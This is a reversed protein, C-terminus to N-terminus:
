GNAPHSPAPLSELRHLVQAAALQEARRKNEASKTVGPGPLLAVKCSVTFRPTGTNASEAVLNYEPLQLHRAQLWEQLLSKADKFQVVDELEDFLQAFLFNICEATKTFSSCDLYIAALVAEFTDALISKSATGGSKLEGAGFRMSSALKLTRALEALTERRVLHARMRSLRGENADPYRQYLTKSIVASLLSDGFFELRENNCSSHSRHTLAQQLLKTDTFFYGIGQQLQYIDM